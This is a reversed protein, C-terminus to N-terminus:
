YVHYATEVTFVYTDYNLLKFLFNESALDQFIALYKYILLAM